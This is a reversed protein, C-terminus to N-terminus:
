RFTRTVTQVLQTGDYWRLVLKHKGKGKPPTHYAVATMPSAAMAAITFLAVLVVWYKAIQKRLRM